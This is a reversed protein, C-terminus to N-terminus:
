GFFSGNRPNKNVTCDGSTIGDSNDGRCSVQNRYGICGNVKLNLLRAGGSGTATAADPSPKRTKESTEVGCARRLQGAPNARGVHVGSRGSSAAWRRSRVFGGASTTAPPKTTEGRSNSRSCPASSVRRGAISDVPRPRGLNGSITGASRSRSFPWVNLTINLEAGHFLAPLGLAVNKIERNKRAPRVNEMWLLLMMPSGNPPPPQGWAIFARAHGSLRTAHNRLHNIRSPQQTQMSCIGFRHPHVKM